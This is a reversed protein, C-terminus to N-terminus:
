FRYNVKAFFTRGYNIPSRFEQGNEYGYTRSWYNDFLNKGGIVLDLKNKFFKKSLTTELDSMSEKYVFYYDGLADSSTALAPTKGYLKYNAMLIVGAKRFNYQGNLTYNAYSVEKTWIADGAYDYSEGTKNYAASLRLGKNLYALNINFGRTRRGGFNTNRYEETVPNTRILAIVDKGDNYFISPELKITSTGKNITYLLSANYSDTTEAKLDPNGALNHNSDHFDLFLEKLSPARFGKAYSARINLNEIIGWKANMSFILPTEFSTNYIYRLGPQLSISSIPEWQLSAFAAYDSMSAEKEIRDGDGKDSNIDWGFQYNFKSEEPAVTFTGRTMLNHFITGTTGTRTHTLESLDSRIDEATRKFYTYAGVVNYSSSKSIRDSFNLTNMSRLTIYNNDYAILTFPNENAYNKLESNMISSKVSVQFDNKRYAYEIDGNYVLKPKFEMYRDKGTTNNNAINLDLDIGQFINRSGSVSLTSNGKSISGFVGVNYNNKTDTYGNVTFMNKSTKNKKTIINIVGALASTGYVVSMPGQVIEIHDVNDMNIQSLDIDGAVRGIIPVGDILYKVNEGGMGQMELSTGTSPDTKLRIFSEQSLAEALNNVGRQQMDRSSIVNIKYISKDAKKPGYQGTIVIDDLTDYQETMELTLHEGKGIQGELTEFGLFSVSYNVRDDLDFRVMGNNDTVLGRILQGNIKYLAVTVYPIEQNTQSDIVRISTNQAIIASQFFLAFVLIYIYNLKM